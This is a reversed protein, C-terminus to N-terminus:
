RREQGGGTSEIRAAGFVGDLDDTKVTRESTKDLGGPAQEAAM